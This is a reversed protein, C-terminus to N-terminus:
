KEEQEDKKDDRKKKKKLDNQRDTEKKESVNKKKEKDSGEKKDDSDNINKKDSVDSKSDNEDKSEEEESAIIGKNDSKYGTPDNDSHNEGGPTGYDDGEEDWCEEDNCVEDMCSHWSEEQTGDGPVSNREMSRRVEGNEGAPWNDGKAKDIIEGEKNRLILNENGSNSLSLSSNVQDVEVSLASKSSEDSYNSILYYGNPDIIKNGSIKLNNGSSRANEIEWGGIDVEFNNMNRLELWEDYSSESSGMWMVENIVVDGYEINESETENGVENSEENALKETFVIRNGSIKEEDNWGKSKSLNKQWADLSIDFECKEEWDGSGIKLKIDWEDIEEFDSNLSYSFEELDGNYVIDGNVRAEVDTDECLSGRVNDTVIMYRFDITGSNKVSFNRFFEDGKEVDDESFIEEGEIELDLTGTSFSNESVKEVDSFFAGTESIGIAFNLFVFAPFFLAVRIFIKKNKNLM